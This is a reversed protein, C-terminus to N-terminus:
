YKASETLTCNNKFLFINKLEEHDTCEGMFHIVLGCFNPCTPLFMKVEPKTELYGLNNQIPLSQNIYTIAYDFVTM